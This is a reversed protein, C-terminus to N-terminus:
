SAASVAASSSRPSGAWRDASSAPRREIEDARREKEVVASKQHHQDSDNDRDDGDDRRRHLERAASADAGRQNFTPSRCDHDPDLRREPHRQHEREDLPHFRGALPFLGPFRQSHAGAAPGHLLQGLLRAAPDAQAFREALQHREQDRAATQDQRTAGRPLEAGIARLDGQEIRRDRAEPNRDQHGDHHQQDTKPDRDM